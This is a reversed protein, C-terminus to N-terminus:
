PTGAPVPVIAIDDFLAPNRDMPGERFLVLHIMRTEPSTTFDFSVKQWPHIGTLRTGESAGLAYEQMLAASFQEGIWLFERFELVGIGATATNTFQTRMRASVRYRQGPEVALPTFFGISELNGVGRLSWCRRSGGDPDSILGSTKVIHEIFSNWYPYGEEDQEPRFDGLRPFFSLQPVSEFNEGIPPTPPTPSASRAYSSFDRRPESAVAVALHTQACICTLLAFLTLRRLAHARPM